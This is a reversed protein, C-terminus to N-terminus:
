IELDDSINEHIQAEFNTLNAINKEEMFNLRGVLAM